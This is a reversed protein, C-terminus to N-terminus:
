VIGKQKLRVRVPGRFSAPDVVVGRQTIEVRGNSALRRAARRAPETLERWRDAGVARAAESPCISKSGRSALLDLIAQEIKSDM